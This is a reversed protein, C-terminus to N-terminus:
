EWEYMPFESAPKGKMFCRYYSQIYSFIEEKRSLIEKLFVSVYEPSKEWKLEYRLNNVNFDEKKFQKLNIAKKTRSDIMVRFPEVLDCVLSKRMYFSRHMVGYYLDFGYLSLLMEVFTFLVTYGLDLAANVMDNKVRPKRGNWEVNNFFNEFYVRAAAGEFGMLRELSDCESLKSLYEDMCCIAKKQIETKNRVQVLAKRQNRLKNEILRCALDISQYRYQKLHLLTNGEHSKGIIQYLRFGPTMLAISFGFKACRQILGTTIATHGVIVLLIVRYCTVQLKIKKEADRIVLNDNRFGVTDGQNAFMFIIQKKNFDNKDLM